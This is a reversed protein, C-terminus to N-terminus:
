RDAVGAGAGHFADYVVRPARSRAAPAVLRALTALYPSVVDVTASALRARRAPAGSVLAAAALSEIRQAQEATVGGGWAAIVKVGQDAPRNHSATVVVGADARGERVAHAVVPTPVPSAACAVRAGCAALASAMETRLQPGLFRTDHGILIRPRPGASEAAWQAIAVALARMRPGTIEDGLTGRWGSTGFRIPQALGRGGSM